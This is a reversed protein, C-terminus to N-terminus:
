SPAPGVFSGRAQITFIVNEERLVALAKRVTDRGVGFDQELTAESPLPDLRQLEGSEIPGRIIDALQRYLPVASFMDISVNRVYSVRAKYGSDGKNGRCAMDAWPRGPRQTGDCARM